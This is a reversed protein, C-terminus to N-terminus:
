LWSVTVQLVSEAPTQAFGFIFHLLWSSPFYPAHGFPHYQMRAGFPSPLGHPGPPSGSHEPSQMNTGIFYYDPSWSSNLYFTRLSFNHPVSDRDYILFIFDLKNTRLSVLVYRQDCVSGSVDKILREDTVKLLRYDLIVLLHFNKSVRRM